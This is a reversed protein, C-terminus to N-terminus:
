PRTRRTRTSSSTAWLGPSWGLGAPGIELTYFMSLRNDIDPEHISLLRTQPKTVLRDVIEELSQIHYRWEETSWRCYLIHVDLSSGFSQAVREFMHRHNNYEPYLDQIRDKIELHPDGVIWLQAGKGVDFQHHVAVQRIKWSKDIIKDRDEEKLAVTKLNYCMQYRRGSRDLEPLETGKIVNELVKETRFGSYRLERDEATEDGYIYLFDLYTPM